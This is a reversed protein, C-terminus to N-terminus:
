PLFASNRGAGKAFDALDRGHVGQICIKELECSPQRPRARAKVATADRHMSGSPTPAEAKPSTTWLDCRHCRLDAPRTRKCATCHLKTPLRLRKTDRSASPSALTTRQPQSCRCQARSVLSKAATSVLLSSHRDHHSCCQDGTSDSMATRVHKNPGDTIDYVDTRDQANTVVMYVVHGVTSKVGTVTWPPTKPGEASVISLVCTKKVLHVM